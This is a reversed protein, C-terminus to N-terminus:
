KALLEVILQSQIQNSFEDTAPLRLVKVEGKKPDCALWPPVGEGKTIELHSQVLKQSAERGVASVVEEPRVLYSAIRLRKGNVAVHGHTIIQRAQSRSEAFGALFVVNDLRREIFSMLNDGTAGKQRSAMQYIRKFQRDLVGYIRKAKQKERLQNGYESLRKRRFSKAGPPHPRRAIACKVSHCRAGRLYLREGERRCLKCKADVYRAM